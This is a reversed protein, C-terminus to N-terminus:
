KPPAPPKAADELQQAKLYPNDEPQGANAVPPAQRQQDPLVQPHQVAVQAPQPIDATMANVDYDVPRYTSTEPGMVDVPQPQPRNAALIAKAKKLREDDQVATAM